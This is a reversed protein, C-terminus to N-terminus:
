EWSRVDMPLSGLGMEKAQRKQSLGGPTVSPRTPAASSETPLTEGPPGGKGDQHSFPHPSRSSSCFPEHFWTQHPHISSMSEGVRTMPSKRGWFGRPGGFHRAKSQPCGDESLFLSQRRENRPLGPPDKQLSLPMTQRGLGRKDQTQPLTKWVPRLSCSKM